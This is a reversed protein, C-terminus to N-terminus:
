IGRELRKILAIVGVVKAVIRNVLSDIDTVPPAGQTFDIVFAILGTLDFEIGM